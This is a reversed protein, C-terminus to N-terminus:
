RLMLSDLLPSVAEAVAGSFTLGRLIGGLPTGVAGPVGPVGPM